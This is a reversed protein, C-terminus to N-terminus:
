FRPLTVEVVVFDRGLFDQLRMDLRRPFSDRLRLNDQQNLIRGIEIQSTGVLLDFPCSRKFVVSSAADEEMRQKGKITVAQRQPDRPLLAPSTVLGLLVAGLLLSIVPM